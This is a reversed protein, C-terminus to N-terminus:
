VSPNRIDPDIILPLVSLKGDASRQMLDVHFNTGHRYTATAGAAMPPSAIFHVLRCGAVPAASESGDPGVHRLAGYHAGAAGDKLSIAPHGPSFCWNLAPDLRLVVYTPVDQINLDLPTALQAEAAPALAEALSAAPPPAPALVAQLGGAPLDAAPEPDRYLFELGDSTLRVTLERQVYRTPAPGQWDASLPVQDNGTASSNEEFRLATAM